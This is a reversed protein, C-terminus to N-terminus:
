PLPAALQLLLRGRRCFRGGPLRAPIGIQATGHIRNGRLTLNRVGSESVLAATAASAAALECDSIEVDHTIGALRIQAGSNDVLRCRRIALHHVECPSPDPRTEIGSGRNGSIDCDDFLNHCDYAGISVGLGNGSIVSGSVSMRTARVCVFIGCARNGVSAIREFRIGTSGAGPHLGNGRNGDFRSDRVMVDRCFQFSLGDGNFDSQTVREVLVERCTGFYVAGGRCAGLDRPDGDANGELRLDGLTVAAADLAYVLPHMTRLMPSADASYDSELGADLGVRGDEVWTITALTEHFGGHRSDTIWVTMGPELGATSRLAVDRMGYNAYGALPYERAPAKRLVTTPGSGRLTVGSRLRLGRDLSIEGPPLTVAGGGSAATGDIAAQIAAATQHM